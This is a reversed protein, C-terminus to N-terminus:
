LNVASGRLARLFDLDVLIDPTSPDGVVGVDGVARMDRNVEADYLWALQLESSQVLAVNGNWDSLGFGSVLHPGGGRAAPQGANLSQEHSEAMKRADQAATLSPYVLVMLVRGDNQGHVEFTTVPPWTWDWAHSEDITYGAGGFADRVQDVAM